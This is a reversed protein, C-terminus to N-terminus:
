RALAAFLGAMFADERQHNLERQQGPLFVSKLLLATEGDRTTCLWMLLGRGKRIPEFKLRVVRLQVPASSVDALFDRARLPDQVPFTIEPGRRGDLIEDLYGRMHDPLRIVTIPEMDEADYIVVRMM